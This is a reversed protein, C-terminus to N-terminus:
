NCRVVCETVCRELGPFRDNWHRGRCRVGTSFVFTTSDADDLMRVCIVLISYSIEAKGRFHRKSQLSIIVRRLNASTSRGRYSTVFDDISTAYRPGNAGDIVRGDVSQSANIAAAVAEGNPGCAHNGSAEATVAATSTSSESKSRKASVKGKSKKILGDRM